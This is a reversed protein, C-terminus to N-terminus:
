RPTGLYAETSNRSRPSLDRASVRELDIPRGVVELEHEGRADVFAHRRRRERVRRRQRGLESARDQELAFIQLGDEGELDAARVVLHRRQGLLLTPAADDGTRGAVVGLADRQGPVLEADGARDDHREVRRRDLPGVDLPEARRDDQEAVVKVLRLALARPELLLVAEGVDRREVIRVDDGPLSRRRDLQHPLRVRAREVAHERANTAATQERACRQVDLRDCRRTHLDDAHLRVVAIRHRARQRRPSSHRQVRDTEEALAGRHPQDALLREAQTRLEDIAHDRDGVVLDARRDFVDEVVRPRDRLRRARQRDSAHGLVDVLVVEDARALAEDGENGAGVHVKIAQAEDGLAGLETLTALRQDADLDRLPGARADACRQDPQARLKRLSAVCM